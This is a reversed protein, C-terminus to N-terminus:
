KFSVMPRFGSEMAETATARISGSTCAGIIILTDVGLAQLSTSLNTGFFASPYKRHMVIDDKEVDPVLVPNEEGQDDIFRHLGRKDDKAFIELAANKKGLLGADRLNSHTYLIQTWIVPVKNEHAADVLKKMSAPAKAANSYSVLSLPSSPEFYAKCVDILILAPRSGFGMVKTSAAGGMGPVYEPYDSPSLGSM